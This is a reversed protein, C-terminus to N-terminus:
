FQHPAALHSRARSVRSKITGVACDCARAAEEYSHGRAGVLVLADCQVKPLNELEANLERLRIQAEQRDLKFRTRPEPAEDFAVEHQPRRRKSRFANKLIQFLWARQNTGPTFQRRNALAKRATEQVLDDAESADHTLSRAFIQLRGMNEILDNEFKRGQDESSHESQADNNQNM